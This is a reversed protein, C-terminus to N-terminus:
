DHLRGEKAAGPSRVVRVFVLRSLDAFPLIRIKRGSVSVRGVPLDPPFVGGIGSTMLRAGEAVQVGEPLRDLSLDRGNTGSLIAQLNSGEVRVPIRSNVDTILLVTASSVDAEMVRGVLGEGALVADGKRIGDAMGAGVLLTQAYPGASDGVVRATVYSLSPDLRVNLLSRLSRNEAQLLLAAQHWEQLRQNDERVADLESKMRVWDSLRSFFEVGQVFPASLPSLIPLLTSQMRQRPGAMLDPSLASILMLLVAVSLVLWDAVEGGMARRVAYFRSRGSSEFFGQQRM